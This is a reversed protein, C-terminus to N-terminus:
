SGAVMSSTSSVQFEGFLVSCVLTLNAFMILAGIFSGLGLQTTRHVSSSCCTYYQGMPSQFGLIVTGFLSLLAALVATWLAAFAMARSTVAVQAQLYDGYDRDEEDEYYSNNDDYNKATLAFTLAILFAVATLMTVISWLFALLGRRSAVIAGCLSDSM